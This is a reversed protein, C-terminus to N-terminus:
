RQQVAPLHQELWGPIQEPPIPRSLHFGQAIDCGYRELQHLHAPDEVGEAVVALNLSHGLEITSRVINADEESDTMNMIFSQDIKLTHVPMRRLQALSSYGTGFDDLSFGVGLESIRAIVRLAREPDRMLTDETIELELQDPPTDYRRMLAELEQPLRTDLLSAPAINVAVPVAHGARGWARQQALAQDLVELTLARMLGEQEALPLFEAPALLGLRPHQWRVLAEVGAFRSADVSLKPQYHLVLQGTGLAHRLEGVLQLHGRTHSDGEALYSEVGTQQSKARYMAVDACRLLDSRTAAHEPALAVGISARVPIQLGELEFPEELARQLARAADLAAMSTALNRLLMVFEDGGIRALLAHAPLAANLRTAVQRLLEDGANHGLTDNLEKFRDLDLLLLASRHEGGLAEDADEYLRRRNPLGTLEDTRAEITTKALLTRERGALFLRLFLVVIALIVLVHAVPPIGQITDVVLVGLTMLAFVGSLLLPSWLHEHEGTKASPSPTWAAVAIIVTSCPWTATVWGGEVFAGKAVQYLYISDGIGAILLGLGLLLWSRGARRGMLVFGGAVLALLLVDFTPYALNTAIEAAGGHTSAVLPDFLVSAAVSALALAGLLGDLWTALSFRPVRARVLLMVGVYLPPYYGLYGADAWSPYPPNAVNALFGDWYTEGLFYVGLALGIAGWARRDGWVRARWLCLLSSFGIIGDELWDDWSATLLHDDLGLTVHVTYLAACVIVALLATNVLRPRSPLVLRHPHRSLRM